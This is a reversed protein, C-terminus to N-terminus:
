LQNNLSLAIETRSDGARSPCLLEIECAEVGIDSYVIPPDETPFINTRLRLGDNTDQALDLIQYGHTRETADLCANYFGLPDEPYVQKALYIFQKKDRMNKLPM